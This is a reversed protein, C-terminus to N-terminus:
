ADTGPVTVIEAWPVLLYQQVDSCTNVSRLLNTQFDYTTRAETTEINVLPSEAAFDFSRLDTGPTAISKPSVAMPQFNEVFLHTVVTAHSASCTAEHSADM